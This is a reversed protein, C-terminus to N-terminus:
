RGTGDTHRPHRDPLERDNKGILLDGLYLYDLETNLFTRTADEPSEVIPEGADNFTTNLVIPVGTSRDLEAILQHFRPNTGAGVTQVRATGDVHTIAPVVPRRDVKVEPALLMFPSDITMEFWESAKEVLVSPAYPRFEERHKVVQNLYDRVQPHAPNALISRHGLAHPGLESGGQVWGVVYNEAILGAIEPVSAERWHVKDGISKLARMVQQRGYTRGLAPSALHHRATGGGIAYYGYYAAGLAAGADGAPPLIYLDEFPGEAAIRQNAGSNLAVGGTLCLRRQGTLEYAYRALHLMAAATEDQAKRAVDAAFQDRWSEPQSARWGNGAAAHWGAFAKELHAVEAAVDGEAIALLPEWDPRPQGYPALCMTKGGETYGGCGADGVSPHGGGTVFGLKANFFSHFPGIGVSGRDAPYAAGYVRHLTTGEGVFVTHSEMTDTGPVLSGVGDVVLVAASDFPSALYGAYAHALHHSPMPLSYLRNKDRIPLEALLRGVSGDDVPRNGVVLDVEDIGIGAADLVYTVSKMPLARDLKGFHGHVSFGESHKMRDLREEEIAAVVEGDHLLAAARDHGLSM